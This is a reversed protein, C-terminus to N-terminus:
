AHYVGSDLQRRIRVLEKLTRWADRGARLKSGSADLWRVPVEVTVYGLVRAIVLSEIDFGWREITLRKFIERAAAAEFVKFGNQTDVFALGTSFQILRNGIRSIIRRILPQAREIKSDALYRSGLVVQAKLRAPWLRDLEEIPTANDADMILVYSGQAQQVGARVAAGKGRNIELQEFRLPVSFDSALAQVVKVTEDKSGDDVVIVESSPYHAKLHSGVLKLTKPLRLAENYAPIIVSLSLVNM